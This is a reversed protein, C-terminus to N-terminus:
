SRTPLGPPGTRRIEREDGVGVPGHRDGCNEGREFAAEQGMGSNAKEAGVGRDPLLLSASAAAMM